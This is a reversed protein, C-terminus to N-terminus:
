PSGGPGRRALIVMRPTTPGWPSADYDGWVWEPDLSLARLTELIEHREYLRIREEWTVRRGTGEQELLVRKRVRRGAELLEREEVIVWDGHRRVTRSRLQGRVFGPNALDLLLFGGPRLVRRVEQLVLRDQEPMPFYGFSTFVSLVGDISGPRIPIWRMDARVAVLEPPHAPFLSLLEPSLDLGVVRARLAAAAQAVRGTGTGLDLLLLGALPRVRHLQGVLTRAEQPDRHAYVVPYLSGFARRYWAEERRQGPTSPIPEPSGERAKMIRAM